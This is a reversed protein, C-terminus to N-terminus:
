IDNESDKEKPQEDRDVLPSMKNRRFLQVDLDILEGDAHARGNPGPLLPLRFVGEAGQGDAAVAGHLPLVPVVARGIGPGKGGLGQPLLQDDQCRARKHVQHRSKEDHDQEIGAGAGINGGGDGSQGLAAGGGAHQLGAVPDQGDVSVPHRHIEVYGAGQGGPSVLLGEHHLSVAM